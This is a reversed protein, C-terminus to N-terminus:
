LDNELENSKASNKMKMFTIDQSLRDFEPSSTKEGSNLCYDNAIDEIKASTEEDLKLEKFNWDLMVNKDIFEKIDEYEVNFSVSSLVKDSYDGMKGFAIKLDEMLKNSKYLIDSSEPKNKDYLLEFALQKKSATFIKMMEQAEKKWEVINSKLKNPLTHKTEVKERLNDYIKELEEVLDNRKDNIFERLEKFREDILDIFEDKKKKLKEKEKNLKQKLIKNEEDEFM